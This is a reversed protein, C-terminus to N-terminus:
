VQEGPGASPGPDPANSTPHVNKEENPNLLAVAEAAAQARFKWPKGIHDALENSVQNVRAFHQRHLEHSLAVADRLSDFAASM